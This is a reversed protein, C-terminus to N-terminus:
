YFGSYSLRCLEQKELLRYYRVEAVGSKIPSRIQFSIRLEANQETAGWVGIEAATIDAPFSPRPTNLRFFFHKM